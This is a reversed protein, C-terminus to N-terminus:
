LKGKLKSVWRKDFLQIIKGLSSGLYYDAATKSLRKPPLPKAHGLHNLRKPLSPEPAPHNIDVKLAAQITESIETDTIGAKIVKTMQSYPMFEPTTSRKAMHYIKPWFKNKLFQTVVEEYVLCEVMDRDNILDMGYSDAELEEDQLLPLTVTQYLPSYIQFFYSLVKTFGNKAHKCSTNFQAWIDNLFYLRTTVPTHQTSLQGIRRALLARFYLPSMTLLVPLGIILTSSNLFPMHTRPTKIVRIEYKDRMIIRDIRPKGFDNRLEEILKILHPFKEETIDLGTPISFKIKYIAWSFAGGLGILTLLILADIWDKLEKAKVVTEYLETPLTLVLYPFMLLILIGFLATFISLGFSLRPSKEKLKFFYANQLPNVWKNVFPLYRSLEMKATVKVASYIINKYRTADM